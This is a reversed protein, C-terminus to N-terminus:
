AAQRASLYAEVADFSRLGDLDDPPIQMGFEEEIVTLLLFNSLSNWSKVTDVSAGVIAEHSLDPFAGEFCRILRERIDAM